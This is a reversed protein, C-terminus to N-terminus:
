FSVLKHPSKSGFFVCEGANITILNLGLTLTAKGSILYILQCDSITRPGWIQGLEATMNNAFNGTLKLLSLMGVDVEKTINM